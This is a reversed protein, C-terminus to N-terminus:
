VLIAGMISHFTGLAISVNKVLLYQKKQEKCLCFISWFNHNPKKNTLIDDYVYRLSDRFPFKEETWINDFMHINRITKPHEPKSLAMEQCESFSFSENTCFCSIMDILPFILSLRKRCLLIWSIYNYYYYYPICFNSNAMKRLYIIMTPLSSSFINNRIM